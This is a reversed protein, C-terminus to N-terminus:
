PRLHKRSSVPGCKYKMHQQETECRYVLGGKKHLRQQSLAPLEEAAECFPSYHIKLRLPAGLVSFLFLGFVGFHELM